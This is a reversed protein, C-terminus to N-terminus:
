ALLPSGIIPSVVASSLPRGLCSNISGTSCTRCMTVKFRIRAGVSAETLAFDIDQAGLVGQSGDLEVEGAVAVGQAGDIGIV